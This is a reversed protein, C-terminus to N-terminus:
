GGDRRWEVTAVHPSYHAKARVAGRGHRGLVRVRKAAGPLLDFYNDDFYFGVEDGGDSGELEVCRAFRDTSVLIDGGDAVLELRAEPFSMRRDTDVYDINTCDVGRAADTFRAYLVNESRFQGFEDLSAIEGSMGAPMRAEVKRLALFANTRPTFLGYELEGCVDGASDNVLWLVISDRIDFCCMVPEYGRKAEYYPIYPELYFDVIGSYILPWTDNFKWITHLNSIRPKGSFSPRGMRSRKIGNKFSKAHAAAYKFALEYPTDADRFENIPGAKADLSNGVRRFWAEPMLDGQKKWPYTADVFGADWLRDEAIWRRMSKLAPGSVRMHESFAVPYDMGPVYWWMEYGHTDGARPDNAFQGGSPSTVHYYRSPDIRAVLEPFKRAYLDLGIVREGPHDYEAGMVVENGGCWMFVCAHHKLRLMCHEAESLCLEQYEPWDPLMGYSGFFEQWVLIGREDCESYLEDGYVEGESWVRLTNMNAMEFLDLLTRAREGNWRHTRGDLPALDAGWMRIKRGNVRLDFNIDTKLERFGVKKEDADLIAGDGERVLRTEVTYLPQGGFGRPWWLQPSNVRLCGQAEPQGEPFRLVASDIPQGNPGKVSVLAQLGDPAGARCDGVSARVAVRVAVAGVHYGNSLLPEVDVRSLEAGDARELVVGGFVGILTLCPKAGLYDTFDTIPKRLIKWPAMKGEWEKPLPREGMYGYPSQFFLELRNKERLKGTVDIRLPLYMDEGRGVEEGNLAVRVVTDLQGFLLCDPGAGAAPSAEFDCRYAWDREAVWKLSEGEGIEFDDGILGHARLIEHVGMPMRPVDLWGSGDPSSLKWNKDINIRQKM